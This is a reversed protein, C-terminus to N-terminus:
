FRYGLGAMYVLPDLEVDATVTGVGPVDVKAETDIDIWWVALNLMWQKQAGFGFDVGAEAAIGYSSDLSLDAGGTAGLSAFVADAEGSIKEEFFKTYNVGLGVYPQVSSAADLPFWQLMLTPPLHKTEGLDFTEGLGKASLEHKFPTAALLEVGWHDRFLYAATIGLAAGNDVDAATGPLQTGSLSLASSSVDPNVGAAGLRLITTGQEYAFAPTSLAIAAGLATSKVLTNM